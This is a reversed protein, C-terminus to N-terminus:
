VDTVKQKNKYLHFIFWVTGSVPFLVMMSEFTVETSLMNGIVEIEEQLPFQIKQKDRNHNKGEQSFFFFFLSRQLVSHQILKFLQQFNCFYFFINEIM